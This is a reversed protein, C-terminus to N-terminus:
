AVNFGGTITIIRMSERADFSLEQNIGPEDDWHYWQSYYNSGNLKQHVAHLRAPSIYRQRPRRHLAPMVVIQSQPDHVRDFRRLHARAAITAM